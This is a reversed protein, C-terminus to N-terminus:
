IQAENLVLDDLLEPHLGVVAIGAKAAGYDVSLMTYNEETNVTLIIDRFSLTTDKEHIFIKDIGDQFGHIVSTLGKKTKSNTLNFYFKDAGAGGVAYVSNDEISVHSGLEYCYTLTGIKDGGLSFKKYLGPTIIRQFLTSTRGM